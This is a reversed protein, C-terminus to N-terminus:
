RLPGIVFVRHDEHLGSEKIHRRIAAFGSERTKPVVWVKKGDPLFFYAVAGGPKDMHGGHLLM